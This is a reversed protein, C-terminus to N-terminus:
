EVKPEPELSTIYKRKIKKNKNPRYISETNLPTEITRPNNGNENTNMLVKTELVKKDEYIKDLTAMAM